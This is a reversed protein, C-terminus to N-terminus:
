TVRSMKAEKLAVGHNKSPLFSPIHALPLYLLMDCLNWKGSAELKGMNFGQASSSIREKKKRRREVKTVRLIRKDGGLTCRHTSVCVSPEANPSLSM